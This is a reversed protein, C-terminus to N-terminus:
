RLFLSKIIYGWMFVDINYQSQLVLWWPHPLSNTGYCWLKISRLLTIDLFIYKFTGIERSLPWTCRTYTTGHVKHFCSSQWPIIGHMFHLRKINEIDCIHEREEAYSSGELTTYCGPTNRRDVAINIGDIKM